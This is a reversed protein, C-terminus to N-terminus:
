RELVQPEMRLIVLTAEVRRVVKYDSVSRAVEGDLPFGTAVHSKNGVIQLRKDADPLLPGAHHVPTTARGKQLMHLQAVQSDEVFWTRM